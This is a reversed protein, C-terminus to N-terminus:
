VGKRFQNPIKITFLVGKNLQSECAITGGLNATVINYVISLGLGSGGETRKTTFFPEFIHKINEDSIGRGNDRYYIILEEDNNEVDINIALISNKVFGHKLSNLILNTFIQSIAGPNSYLELGEDCNIYYEFPLNKYEHKLTLFIMEFYERLLFNVYISNTQHVSIQKFSNVLEAARTLNTDIISVSESASELYDIFQEKSLRANSITKYLNDNQEQLYSCASVAVGLPTNIEHSIGAVLGGLSALKERELLETYTKQLEATKALVKSELMIENEKITSFANKLELAMHNFSDVLEFTEYFKLSEENLDISFDGNSLAKAANTVKGIPRIIYFLNWITFIISLIIIILATALSSYQQIRIDSLIDDEPITVIARFGLNDIKDLEDVFGFYKKNNLTFSFSDNTINEHIIKEMSSFIIPNDVNLAPMLGYKSNLETSVNIYNGESSHALINNNKDVIYIIGNGLDSTNKLYDNINNLTADTTVVGIFKNKNFVPTSVSITLNMLEDQNVYVDSWQTVPNEKVPVYWPRTQPHYSDYVTIIDSNINNSSYIALKNETRADKLMLNITNDPNIRFAIFRGLEDSYGVASIQPYRDIAKKTIYDTYKEIQSLDDSLYYNNYIIEDCLFENFFSVDTVFKNIYLETRDYFISMLKESHKAAMSNYSFHNHAIFISLIVINIALVTAIVAFMIPPKNKM